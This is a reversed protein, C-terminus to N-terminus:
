CPHVGPFPDQPTFVQIAPVFGWEHTDDGYTYYWIDNTGNPQGHVWCEFWSPNSRLVDVRGGNPGNRPSEHVIIPANNGCHLSGDSNAFCPPNAASAPTATGVALPTGLLVAGAVALGRWTKRRIITM